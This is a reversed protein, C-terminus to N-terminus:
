SEESPTGNGVGEIYPDKMHNMAKVYDARRRAYEAAVNKDVIYRRSNNGLRKAPLWGKNIDRWVTQAHLGHTMAVQQPTIFESESM